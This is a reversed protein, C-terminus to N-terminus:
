RIWKISCGMSPLESAPGASENMDRLLALELSNETVNQPEKWNDNIRGHYTLRGKHFLFPDPTCVAGYASAVSQDADFLYPLTIGKEKMFPLMQDFGDEPYDPNNNPNIAIVALGRDSYREHLSQLIPWAAVAYPCHNCTFVVLVHDRAIDDSSFNQGRADKLNFHIMPSGTQIVNSELAM